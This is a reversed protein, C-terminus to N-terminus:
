TISGVDIFYQTGITWPAELVNSVSISGEPTGSWLARNEVNEPDTFDVPIFSANYRWTGDEQMVGNVGTCVIRIRM